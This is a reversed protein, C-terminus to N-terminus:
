WVVASTLHVYRLYGPNPLRRNQRDCEYAIIECGLFATEENKENSEANVVAIEFGDTLDAIFQVLTEQFNVELANPASPDDNWLSFRVCFDMKAMNQGNEEYYLLNSQAVTPQLALFLRVDRKGEGSTAPDPNYPTNSLISFVYLLPSFSM